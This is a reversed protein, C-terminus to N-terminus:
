EDFVEFNPMWFSHFIGFNEGTVMATFNEIFFVLEDQMLVPFM